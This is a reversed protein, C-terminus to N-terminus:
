RRLERWGQRSRGTRGVWAECHSRIPQLRRYRLFQEWNELPFARIQDLSSYRWADYAGFYTAWNQPEKRANVLREGTMESNGDQAHVGAGSMAVMLGIVFLGFVKMRSKARVNM